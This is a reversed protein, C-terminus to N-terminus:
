EFLTDSATIEKSGSILELTRLKSLANNFGGGDAAYGCSQAIDDKYGGKRGVASLIAPSIRWLRDDSHTISAM